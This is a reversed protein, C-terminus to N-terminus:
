LVGTGRFQHDLGPLKSGEEVEGGMKSKVAFYRSRCLYTTIM